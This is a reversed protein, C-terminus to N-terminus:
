RRFELDNLARSPEKITCDKKNTLDAWFSPYNEQRFVKKPLALPESYFEGQQFVLPFLLEYFLAEKQAQPQQHYCAKLSLLNQADASTVQPYINLQGQFEISLFHVLDFLKHSFASEGPLSQIVLNEFLALPTEKKNQSVQLATLFAKEQFGKMNPEARNPKAWVFEKILKIHANLENAQRDNDLLTKVELLRKTMKGTSQTPSWVSIKNNLDEAEQELALKKDLSVKKLEISMGIHPPLSLLISSVNDENQPYPKITAKDKMFNLLLSQDNGLTEIAKALLGFPPEKLMNMLELCAYPALDCLSVILSERNFTKFQSEHNFIRCSKTYLEILNFLREGFIVTTGLIILRDAMVRLVAKNNPPVELENFLEDLLEEKTQEENSPLCGFTQTQILDHLEIMLGRLAAYSKDRQSAGSSLGLKNFLYATRIQVEIAHKITHHVADREESQREIHNRKKHRIKM